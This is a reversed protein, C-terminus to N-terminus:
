SFKEKWSWIPFIKHRPSCTYKRDYIRQKITKIKKRCHTAFTFVMILKHATCFCVMSQIKNVKVRYLHNSPSCRGKWAMLQWNKLDENEYIEQSVPIWWWIHEFVNKGLLSILATHNNKMLRHTSGLAKIHMLLAGLAPCHSHHTEPAPWAYTWLRCFIRFYYYLQIVTLRSLNMELTFEVEAETWSTSVLIWNVRRRSIVYFPCSFSAIATFISSILCYLVTIGSLRPFLHNQM